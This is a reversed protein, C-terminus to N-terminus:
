QAVPMLEIANIGSEKLADLRPIIADFTGEPTFTGVHLEYLIAEELPLGKWDRDKWTYAEHDVTESPGEVGEPQYQSAPDPYSKGRELQYFYRLPEEGKEVTVSHYGWENKIMPFVRDFPSVVHLNVSDKEPAWVQFEISKNKETKM